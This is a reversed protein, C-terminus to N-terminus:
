IAPLPDPPMAAWEMRYLLMRPLTGATLYPAPMRPKLENGPNIEVLATDEPYILANEELIKTIPM